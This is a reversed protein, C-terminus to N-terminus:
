SSESNRADLIDIHSRQLNAALQSLKNQEAPHLKPRSRGNGYSLFPIGSM